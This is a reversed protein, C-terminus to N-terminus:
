ALNAEKGAPTGAYMQKVKAMHVLGCPVCLFQYIGDRMHLQLKYNGSSDALQEASARCEACAAKGPAKLALLADIHNQQCRQCIRVGEVLSTEREPVQRLCPGQCRVTVDILM